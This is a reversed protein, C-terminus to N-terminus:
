LEDENNYERERWCEDYVEGRGECEHCEYVTEDDEEKLFGDGKCIKCKVLGEDTENYPARPDHQAGAPLNM